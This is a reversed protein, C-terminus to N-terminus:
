CPATGCSCSRVALGPMTSISPQGESVQLMATVAGRTGLPVLACTPSNKALAHLFASVGPALECPPAHQSQSGVPHVNRRPEDDVADQVQSPEPEQPYPAEIQAHSQCVPVGESPYPSLFLTCSVYPRIALYKLQQQGLKRLTVRLKTLSSQLMRRGSLYAVLLDRAATDTVFVRDEHRSGSVEESDAAARWPLQQSTQVM